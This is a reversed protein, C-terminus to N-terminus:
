NFQTDESKLEIWYVKRENFVILGVFIILLFFIVGFVFYSSYFITAVTSALFSLILIFLLCTDGLDWGEVIKKFKKQKTMEEESM